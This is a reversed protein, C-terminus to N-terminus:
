STEAGISCAEKEKENAAVTREGKCDKAMHGYKGCNRCKGKFEKEPTGKEKTKTKVKGKEGAKVAEMKVSATRAPTTLREATSARRTCILMGLRKSREM